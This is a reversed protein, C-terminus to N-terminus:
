SFLLGRYLPVDLALEFAFYVLATMAVTAILTPVLKAGLRKTYAFVFIPVAVLFGVFYIALFFALIWSFHVFYGRWNENAFEGDVPTRVDTSMGLRFESWLGLLSLLAVISGVIVPLLKSDFRYNEAFLSWMITFLALGLICFYVRADTTLKM